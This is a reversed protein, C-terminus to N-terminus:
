EFVPPDQTLDSASFTEVSATKRIDVSSVTSLNELMWRGMALAEEDNAFIWTPMETVTENAFFLYTTSNGTTSM